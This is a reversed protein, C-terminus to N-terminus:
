SLIGIEASAGPRGPYHYKRPVRGEPPSQSTLRSGVAATKSAQSSGGRLLISWLAFLRGRCYLYYPVLLLFVIQNKISGHLWSIGVASLHHPSQWPRVNTKGILILNQSLLPRAPPFFLIATAIKLWSTSLNVCVSNLDENLFSHKWAM